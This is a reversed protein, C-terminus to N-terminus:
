TSMLQNNVFLEANQQKDAELYNFKGAISATSNGTLNIYFDGIRNESFLKLISNQKLNVKFVDKKIPTYSTLQANHTLTMECLRDPNLEVYVPLEENNIMFSHNKMSLVVTSQAYNFTIINKLASDFRLSVNDGMKENLILQVNLNSKILLSFYGSVFFTDQTEMHSLQLTQTENSQGQTYRGSVKINSGVISQNQRSIKKFLNGLLSM